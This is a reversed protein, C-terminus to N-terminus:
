LQSDFSYTEHLRVVGDADAKPFNATLEADSISGDQTLALIVPGVVKEGEQDEINFAV